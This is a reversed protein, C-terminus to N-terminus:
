SSRESQLTKSLTIPSVEEAHFPMLGIGFAFPEPVARYPPLQGPGCSNSGLGSQKWDLHLTIFDRETLEHRHRAEDLDETTYYHAGFNLEPLGCAMLGLGRDDHLATWRVDTRNGNEQPFIYPFHLEKVSSRYIGMASARKSDSYSEGPGRGYWVTNRLSGPLEMRWGIRPLLEPPKGEPTGSARLTVFGDGRIAYSVECRFGWDYVPPAIRLEFSVNLEGDREEVSWADVRTTLRDLHAKRWEKVVYMDNDITARWFALKPGAKLLSTGEFTWETLSASPLDFTMSFRDGTIRLETGSQERILKGRVDIPAAILSPREQEAAVPLRWQEWALEHGSGAWPQDTALVFGVRLWAEDHKNGAIPLSVIGTAGAPIPPLDLAGSDRVSGDVTVTWVLRVHALTLFDFRNRIELEGGELRAAEVTVPEITKKYELLGPSPTRDPLILGDLCFNGNNPEDGFDGGYAYFSTGDERKTLLGHDIWEWIFGGQLRDHARFAEEYEHLGGPGNGMAHAYECLIHPKDLEARQGFGTIKEVSSYMTSYVDCVEAERDGEYHVLRTPDNAKVWASMARQNCGFGSENGLSWMIISPHNKDRQVMRAVRDVYAAEWAPDDSLMDPKDVLEVGHCELDAEDMVYLGYEDCLDYFRPDNPYHATRVANINHRKMMLIDQKMIEYPVYRGLEPHHDHRNVGKLTIPVGNVRMLGGSVEVQRFGVRCPVVEVTAGAADKLTLLLMYLNPEEASWQRPSVVTIKENTHSIGGEGIAAQFPAGERVLIEKGSPVEILAYELRYDGRQADKSAGSEGDASSYASELSAIEADVSLMAEGTERSLETRVTFDRIHVRPHAILSVDRFIGSLWWMDQDEIYSGDSWQYVKVSLSNSGERLYPTIDFESPLRSGQSYGAFEGNVWVHFASDVGEFRLTVKRSLWAAPLKFERRYCGTPNDNPVRPPDIPFPYYLDTYHPSGYGQMQWHGPVQIDAWTGTDYGDLHFHEPALQPSAAYHFKWAGNLLRFWPSMGRDYSMASPKDSYPVFYTRGAERGRELVDLRQWDPLKAHKNM